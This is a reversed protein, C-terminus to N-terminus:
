PSRRLPRVKLRIVADTDIRLNSDLTVRYYEDTGLAVDVITFDENPSAAKTITNM